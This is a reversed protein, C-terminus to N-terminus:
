TSLSPCSCIAVATVCGQSTGTPCACCNNCDGGQPVSGDNPTCGSGSGPSSKGAKTPSSTPPATPSSTQPPVTPSPTTPPVPVTPSGTPAHTKVGSKTPSGTPAHTKGSKHLRMRKEAYESAVIQLKRSEDRQKELQEKKM